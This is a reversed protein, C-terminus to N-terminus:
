KELIQANIDLSLRAGLLGRVLGLLRQALALAAVVGLEVAVWRVTDARSRAVVADVIQKGVWVMGVPLTAVALTLLGLLFTSRPSSKWVLRLTRPTHAFSERLAALARM